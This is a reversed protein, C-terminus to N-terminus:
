DIRIANITDTAWARGGFNNITGTYGQATASGVFYYYTKPNASTNNIIFNGSIIGSITAPGRTGPIQRVEMLDTSITFSATASDAFSVILRISQDAPMLGFGMTHAVRVNYRSKAPLTISAGTYNWNNWNSSNLTIGQGSNAYNAFILSPTSSGSFNQWLSGNFYYYGEAIINATKTSPSTVPATIYVIAGAQGAGYQVDAAQVQNGTLRPPIFGEPTTGNTNKATVDLTARPTQTNIGVQSYVAVSFMIVVAASLNKKM